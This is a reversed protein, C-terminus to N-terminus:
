AIIALTTTNSDSTLRVPQPLLPAPVPGAVAGSEVGAEGSALWGPAGAPAFGCTRSNVWGPHAGHPSAFSRTSPSKLSIPPFTSYRSTSMDVSGAEINLYPTCLVGLMMTSPLFPLVRSKKAPIGM